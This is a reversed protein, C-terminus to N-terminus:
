RPEVAWNFEAAKGPLPLTAFELTTKNYHDCYSSQYAFDSDGAQLISQLVVPNITMRANQECLINMRADRHM